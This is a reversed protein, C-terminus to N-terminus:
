WVGIWQWYSVAMVFIIAICVLNTWFGARVLDKTSYYGSSYTILNGPTAIVFMFALGGSYAIALTTVLPTLESIEQSLGFGIPLLMAVSATNSILNTLGVTVCILMFLMIYPNKGVINVLSGALWAAAGTEEMGVGLTIAGGYLLIIGWPMKEEVQKWSISNTVFLLVSGILAIIALNLHNSAFIWLFVTFGIIGIVTGERKGIADLERIEKKILMKAATLDLGKEIPFIRVILIWASILCIVVLPISYTMWEFFSIKVSATEDLFAIALPNRAGGIPTGLSGISCGFAIAIVSARGFNSGKPVAGVENLILLIIPLLLVVVAHEPIIFSILAGSVMIGFIFRNPNGEFVHLFFLAMRRHINHAELASAIIFAGILFFVAHNGFAAFVQDSDMIDLMPQLVIILLATAPLPLAETVWFWAAMLFLALMLKGERSLGVPEPLIAIIAFFVIGILLYQVRRSIM